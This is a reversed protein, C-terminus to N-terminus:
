NTGIYILDIHILFCYILEYKFEDVIRKHFVIIIYFFVLNKLQVYIEIGDVGVEIAKEFDIMTNEPYKRSFGGYALNQGYFGYIKIIFEGKLHNLISM